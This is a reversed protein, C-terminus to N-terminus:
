LSTIIRFVVYPPFAAWILYLAFAFVFLFFYIISGVFLRTSRFVFGLAYGILTYDGYLPQFLNRFTIEWALRYDVTELFNLVRNSYIRTSYWYWHRLFDFIRYLFKKSLYTLANNPM